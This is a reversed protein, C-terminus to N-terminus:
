CHAIGPDKTLENVDTWDRQADTKEENVVSNQITIIKSQCM